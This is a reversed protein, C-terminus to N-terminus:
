PIRLDEKPVWLPLGHTGPMQKDDPSDIIFNIGPFTIAVAQGDMSLSQTAAAGRVNAEQGNSCTKEAIRYGIRSRHRHNNATTM